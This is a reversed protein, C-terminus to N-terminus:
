PLTGFRGSQFDRFAEVIEADSNMVFPGRGVVPEDIPEGGLVLLGAEERARVRFAGGRRELFAVHGAPVEVADNLTVPARRALLIGTHGEPLTLEAAGGRVLRVDWVEVPTFTRAPGAAGRFGGAVVRVRGAGGPLDVSPIAREDLDQYRPASRKDRAPLNVWIQAMEFVGGRRAFERGHFEEHLVGSAATMWQVGDRGIRGSNGASDRHEVEGEFALTVTEFGRHPHEGVGRRADTPPFERPAAYDLLLFPSAERAADAYSFMTRVPFGDGVWHPESGARVEAVRRLSPAPAGAGGEATM